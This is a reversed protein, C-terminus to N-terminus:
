LDQLMEILRHVRELLNPRQELFAAHHTHSIDIPTACREVRVIQAHAAEKSQVVVQSATAASLRVRAPMKETPDPLGSRAVGLDRCASRWVRIDSGCALPAVAIGFAGPAGVYGLSGKLEADRRSGFQLFDSGLPAAPAAIWIRIKAKRVGLD